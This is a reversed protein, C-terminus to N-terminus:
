PMFLLCVPSFVKAKSVQTLKGSDEIRFTVINDTDKNAVLLFKGSPDIGFYRPHKGDTPTQGLAMLKGTAADVAFVAISDHGRNSAYLFKGNPHLAIEATSSEGKFGDPLTSISQVEKLADTGERQFVTVTNAMENVCYIFDGKASLALHRPGAGPATSGYPPEGPLLSGDAPNFRYVFVKDLGLDCNFIRTNSSDVYVSHAHPEGQRKPDTGKGTHQIFGTAPRLSGDEAIPLVAISGGGYNAVAVNKGDRDIAIHTPGGGLSQQRNLERLKGGAEIAFASVSGGGEENVAYIFKKNPHAVLFSPSKTAVALRPEGVGGTETNYKCLYIGEAGGQKTYTGVYMPIEEAQVAVVGLLFPVIALLSAFLALSRSLSNM